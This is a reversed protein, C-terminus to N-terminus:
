DLVEGIDRADVDVRVQVARLGEAIGGSLLRHLGDEDRSRLLLHVLSRGRVRAVPAPAPGLLDSPDAGATRLRGVIETAAEWADGERRASLQIRALRGFPPYGFARRRAEMGEVAATARDPDGSAVARLVPHDPAYTQIVGLPAREGAIEQLALLTRLVREDARFDDAHLAGDIQTVALLSVVPLTPLRLVASTGVLVGPAGAALDTLPERVDGDYRVRPLDPIADALARLVWESGAARQAELDLGGCAPCFEPPAVAHGCQHCRLRRDRAHWRLALDCNPCMVAAGCDRCGLAASYGRRPVLVLAQRERQAVQRLVRILDDGLPWSRTRGLDSTVWRVRPRPLSAGRGVTRARERLEPGALVDTASWPVGHEHAWGLAASPTWSRSGSRLKHSESEAELLLLRGSRQLPA